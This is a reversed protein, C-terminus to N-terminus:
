PGGPCITIAPVRTSNTASSQADAAGITVLQAAALTMAASELFRRRRRDIENRGIEGSLANM